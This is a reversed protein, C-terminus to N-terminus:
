ELTLVVEFTRKAVVDADGMAEARFTLTASRGDLEDLNWGDYRLHAESGVWKGASEGVNACALGLAVETHGLATGDDADVADMVVTVGDEYAEPGEIRVRFPSYPAGGQPPNGCWLAGGQDLDGFDGNPPAVEVRTRDSECPGPPLGDDTTPGPGECGVLGVLGLLGLARV